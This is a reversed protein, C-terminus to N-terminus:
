EVMRPNSLITDFTEKWLTEYEDNPLTYEGDLSKALTDKSKEAFISKFLEPQLEEPDNIPDIGLKDLMISKNAYRVASQMKGFYNECQAPNYFHDMYWSVRANFEVPKEFQYHPAFEDGMNLFKKVNITKTM